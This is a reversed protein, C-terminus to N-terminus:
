HLMSAFSKEVAKPDALLQAAVQGADGPYVDETGAQIAAVTADAVASPSIKPASVQVTMDTDVFSPMLGIVLTGQSALEARVGQTLSFAAAKSASYSGAAPLSVHSLISLVNVIAGGGNRKLVPAFARMMALTGFYNVRMEDAADKSDAPRLFTQGASIGANNVLIDVDGAERAVAAVRDDDTIDLAIPVVVSGAEAAPPNRTAAYVKRAGAAVFAAVLAAGIGRNAGTVLVVSGKVDM